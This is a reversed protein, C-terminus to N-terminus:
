LFLKNLIIITKSSILYYWDMVNIISTIELISWRFLYESFNQFFHLVKFSSSTIVQQLWKFARCLVNRKYTHIFNHTVIHITRVIKKQTPGRVLVATPLSAKSIIQFLQKTTNPIMEFSFHYFSCILDISCWYNHSKINSRNLSNFRPSKNARFDERIYVDKWRTRYLM